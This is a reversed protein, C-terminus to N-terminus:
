RESIGEPKIKLQKKGSNERKSSIDKREKTQNQLPFRTEQNAHRKKVRREGEKM